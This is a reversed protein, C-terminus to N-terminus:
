GIQEGDRANGAKGSEEALVLNEFSGVRTGVRIENKPKETDNARRYRREVHEAQDKERKKARRAIVLMMHVHVFRGLVHRNREHNEREARNEAAPEGRRM